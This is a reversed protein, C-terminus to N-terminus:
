TRVDPRPRDPTAAAAAAPRGRTAAWLALMGLALVLHLWDDTDDAPLWDMVGLLGLLLLGLYVIGGGLLYLNSGEWTRAM